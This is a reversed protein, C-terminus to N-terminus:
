AGGTPHDTPISEQSVIFSMGRVFFMNALTIIFAPLKLTDIIWGMLEGFMAGMMLAIDFAFFPDIGYTGILKALLVGTFTIVSGM